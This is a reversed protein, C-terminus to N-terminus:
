KRHASSRGPSQPKRAVLMQWALHHDPGQGCRPAPIPSVRADELGAGRAFRKLASPEFGLWLDAQSRMSEDEHAAYDIVVVAGGPRALKELQKVVDAPKPAHHLLRSAFVADAGHGTAQKVERADLEGEILEVNAFGRVSAREKANALQASSRDVGVVREYLPALVELLGGDGTGADIALARNPFLPALASLYAGLESPFATSSGNQSRASSRAFFERGIADRQRVVEIV